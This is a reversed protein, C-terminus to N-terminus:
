VVEKRVSYIKHPKNSVQSLERFKLELFSPDMTTWKQLNSASLFEHFSDPQSDDCPARVSDVAVCLSGFTNPTVNEGSSASNVLLEARSTDFISQHDGIKVIGDRSIQICWPTLNRHHLKNEALFILGDLIQSLIVSIEDDKLIVGECSIIDELSVDLIESVAFCEPPQSDQHHIEISLINPHIVSASKDFTPQCKDYPIKEVTVIKFTSKNQGVILDSWLTLVFMKEIHNWINKSRVSAPRRSLEPKSPKGADPQQWRQPSPDFITMRSPTKVTPIPPSLKNESISEFSDEHNKPFLTHRPNTLIRQKGDM